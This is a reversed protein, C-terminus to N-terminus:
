TASSELCVIIGFNFSVSIKFISFDWLFSPKWFKKKMDKLQPRFIEQGTLGIITAKRNYDCTENVINCPM